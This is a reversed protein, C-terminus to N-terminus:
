KGEKARAEDDLQLVVRGLEAFRAHQIVLDVPDTDPRFYNSRGEGALMRRLDATSAELLEEAYALRDEAIGRFFGALPFEGVLLKEAEDKKQSM